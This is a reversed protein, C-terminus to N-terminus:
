SVSFVVPAGAGTAGALKAGITIEFDIKTKLVRDYLVRTTDYLYIIM